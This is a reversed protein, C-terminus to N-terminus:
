NSQPKERYPSCIRKDALILLPALNSRGYVSLSFFHVPFFSPLLTFEVPFPFFAPWPLQGTLSLMTKTFMHAKTLGGKALIFQKAAKMNELNKSYYGSYLLAYYAEITATINGNGEDYFLKWAGNQEQKSAIRDGLEQILEEDNIELTRLLIIMYCDTTIGTEFPYDWSGDPTQETRLTEILSQIQKKIQARM